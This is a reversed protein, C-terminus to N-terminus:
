VKRWENIKGRKTEAQTGKEREAETGEMREAEREKMLTKKSEEERLIINQTVKKAKMWDEMNEKRGEKWRYNKGGKKGKKRVENSRRKVCGETM